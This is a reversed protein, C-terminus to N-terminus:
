SIRVLELLDCMEELDIWTDRLNADAARGVRNDATSLHLCSDEVQKGLLYYYELQLHHCIVQFYNRVYAPAFFEIAKTGPQCFILNTLGAGHCGAIAEAQSFLAIQEAVTFDELAVSAFGFNKLCAVVEEENLIRRHTANKRSVYLRHPTSSPKKQMPLLNKRLVRCVWPPTAATFGRNWPPLTATISPVLLREAQLHLCESSVVIKDSPIQLYDLTEKQYNKNLDNVVFRAVRDFSGESQRILEFRPLIDLMWHYYNFGGALVSLFAIKGAFNQPKPLYELCALIILHEEGTSIRALLRDTATFVASAYPFAIARGQRLSVVFGPSFQASRAQLCPVPTSSATTVAAPMRVYSQSYFEKCALRESSKLSVDICPLTYKEEKSISKGSYGRRIFYEEVLDPQEQLFSRLREIAELINGQQALTNIFALAERFDKPKKNSFKRYYFIAADFDEKRKYTKALACLAHVELEPKELLPQLLEIADDLYGFKQMIIGLNYRAHLCNPDIAIAKRYCEVSDEERNQCSFTCGLKFFAESFNPARDVAAQYSAIANEFDECEFYIEGIAFYPFPDASDLASAQRYFFIGREFERKRRYIAGLNLYARKFKPQLAIAREYSAIAADLRDCRASANGLNLYAVASRTDLYIAKTYARVAADTRELEHLRNGLKRYFASTEPTSAITQKLIAIEKQIESSM